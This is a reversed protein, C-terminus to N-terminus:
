LIPLRVMQEQLLYTKQCKFQPAMIKLNTLKDVLDADNLSLIEACLIAANIVGHKGVSM